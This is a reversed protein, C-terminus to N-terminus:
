QSPRMQIQPVDDEVNTKRGLHESFRGAFGRFTCLIAKRQRSPTLALAPRFQLIFRFRPPLVFSLCLSFSLGPDETSGAGPRGSKGPDPAMTM